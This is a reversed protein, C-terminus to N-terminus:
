TFDRFGLDTNTLSFWCCTQTIRHFMTIRPRNIAGSTAPEELLNRDAKLNLFFGNKLKPHTPPPPPALRYLIALLLFVHIWAAPPGCYRLIHLKVYVRLNDVQVAWDNKRRKFICLLELIDFILLLELYNLIFICASIIYNEVTYNVM